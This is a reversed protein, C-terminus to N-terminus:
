RRAVPRGSGCNSNATQMGTIEIARNRTHETM